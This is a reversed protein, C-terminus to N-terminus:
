RAIGAAQVATFALRMTATLGQMENGATTPLSLTFIMKDTGGPSLADAAPLGDTSIAPGAYLTRQTGGCAYTPLATTGGKTWARSCQLLTLQLGNVRDTTLANAPDATTTALNISSLAVNGDNALNIARTLSDGPLFDSTTVPITKPGTPASLDISLTGTQVTTDVSTSDTFTGFTGLGAVAAATGIVGLSGLIKRAMNRTRTSSM